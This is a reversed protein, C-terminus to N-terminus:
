KKLLYVCDFEIAYPFRSENIAYLGSVEFGMSRFLVLSDDFKPLNKYIPLVSVETQIGLIQSICGLSGHFVDLDNGQTDIKLFVYNFNYKEELEQMVDDLRKVTVEVKRKLINEDSFLDTETKDPELFSNFVSNRMVNLNQKTNEKGLAYNRIHWQDDTQSAKVLSEYSDPDPEFSIILGSYGVQKRLFDGYQGVNAGVDIFCDIKYEEIIKKIRRSLLFYDLRWTPVIILGLKNYVYEICQKVTM